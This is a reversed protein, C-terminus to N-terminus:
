KKQDLPKFREILHLCLGMLEKLQDKDPLGDGYCIISELTDCGSCSGYYNETFYYDDIDPQYSTTPIMFIQTGQYDGDNIIPTWM